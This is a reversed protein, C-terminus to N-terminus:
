KNRSAAWDASLGILKLPPKAPFEFQEHGLQGPIEVDVVVTQAYFEGLKEVPDAAHVKVTCDKSDYRVTLRVVDDFVADDYGAQKSRLRLANMVL